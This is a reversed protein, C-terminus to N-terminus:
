HCVATLRDFAVQSLSRLELAGSASRVSVLMGCEGVVALTTRSQRAAGRSTLSNEVVVADDADIDPSGIVRSTVTADEDGTSSVVITPCRRVHERVASVDGVLADEFVVHLAVDDNPPEGILVVAAAPDGEGRTVIESLLASVDVCGAPEVVVGPVGDAVSDIVGSDSIETLSVYAGPPLDGARLLATSLDSTADSESTSEPVGACGSAAIGIAVVVAIGATSRRM